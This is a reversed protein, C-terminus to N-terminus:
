GAYNSYEGTANPFKIQWDEYGTFSFAQFKVEGTFQFILDGTKEDIQVDIVRQDRLRVQLEQIADIPTTLGYKQRHDFNSIRMEGGGIVRWYEAQLWSENSFNSQVFADESNQDSYAASVIVSTGALASLSQNFGEVTMATLKGEQLNAAPVSLGGLTTPSSQLSLM